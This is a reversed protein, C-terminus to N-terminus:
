CNMVVLQESDIDATCVFHIGCACFLCFHRSHLVSASGWAGWCTLFQSVMWLHAAGKVGQGVVLLRRCVHFRLRLSITRALRQKM